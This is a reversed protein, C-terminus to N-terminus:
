KDGFLLIQKKKDIGTKYYNYVEFAIKEVEGKYLRNKGLGVVWRIGNIPDALFMSDIEKINQENIPCEYITMGLNKSALKAIRTAFVKNSSITEPSSAYILSKDKMFFIDSYISRRFNGNMDTIIIDDLGYKEKQSACLVEWPFDPLSDRQITEPLELVDTFIGNTNISYFEHPLSETSILISFSNDSAIKHNDSSNRFITITASFEKYIRNKRLLLQIDNAFSKSSFTDNQLGLIEIMQEICKFYMDFDYVICSNGRLQVSFSDGWQLGRNNYCLCPKDSPLIEGNLM